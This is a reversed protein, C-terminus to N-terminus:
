PVAHFKGRFAVENEGSVQVVEPPLLRGASFTLVAFGSRHNRPNDETYDRFQPGYPDALTGTDVGWRCGNYDDYPTVKLSHLHGTVMSKGSSMANNHTAHVGGKYRHKIVVDDNVWCAWAPRWEPFHDQLHMGHVGRYESGVTALKTEFRADHNGLTWVLISNKAAAQIEGLRDKCANLEEIVSPSSEWGIPPHRSITSGDFADGNMVVIQPKLVECAKVFAKHATSVIGPWYHADSAVLIVGSDLEYNARQPYEPNNVTRAPTSSPNLRVGLKSEMNRRRQYVARESIGLTKATRTAGWKIFLDLFEEESCAPLSM